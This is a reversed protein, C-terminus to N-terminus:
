CGTRKTEFDPDSSQKYSKIVQSSVGEERIELRLGEHGIDDVVRGKAVLFEALSQCAGDFLCTM